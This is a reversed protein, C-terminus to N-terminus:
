RITSLRIFAWDDSNHTCSTNAIVEFASAVAKIGKYFNM